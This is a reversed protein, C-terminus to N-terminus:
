RGDDCGNTRSQDGAQFAEQVACIRRARPLVTQKARLLKQLVHRLSAQELSSRAPDLALM